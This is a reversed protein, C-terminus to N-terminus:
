KEVEVVQIYIKGNCGNEYTKDIVKNSICKPYWLDIVIEKCGTDEVTYIGIADGKSDDPLRQFVVIQKGILEINGSACMGIRTQTGTKTIGENSYVTVRGKILNIDDCANVILVFWILFVFITFLLATILKYFYKDM